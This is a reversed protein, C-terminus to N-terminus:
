MKSIYGTFFHLCECRPSKKSCKWSSNKQFRLLLNNNRICPRTFYFYHSIGSWYWINLALLRLSAKPFRLLVNHKLKRLWWPINQEHFGCLFVFSVSATTSIQKKLNCITQRYLKTGIFTLIVSISLSSLISQGVGLLASLPRESGSSWWQGFKCDLWLIFCFLVSRSHTLASFTPFYLQNPPYARNRQRVRGAEYKCYEKLTRIDTERLWLSNTHYSSEWHRSWLGYLTSHPNGRVAAHSSTNWVIFSWLTHM